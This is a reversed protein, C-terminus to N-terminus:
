RDEGQVLNEGEDEVQMKTKEDEVLKLLYDFKKKIRAQSFGWFTMEDMCHVIIEVESFEALTEPAIQMGLWTSWDTFDLAWLERAAQDEHPRSLQDTEIGCVDIDPTDDEINMEHNLLISMTSSIPQLHNLQKYLKIYKDILNAQEPFNELLGKMATVLDTRHVLEFLTTM